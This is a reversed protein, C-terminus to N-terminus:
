LLHTNTNLKEITQRLQSQQELLTAQTRQWDESQTQERTEERPRYEERSTEFVMSFNKAEACSRAIDPAKNQTPVTESPRNLLVATKNMLLQMDELFKGKERMVTDRIGSIEGRLQKLFLVVM